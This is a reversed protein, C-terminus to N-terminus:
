RSIVRRSDGVGIANSPQYESGKEEFEIISINYLSECGTFADEKIDKIQMSIRLEMLNQCGYFALSSVTKVNAPITIDSLSSVM